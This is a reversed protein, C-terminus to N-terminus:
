ESMGENRIGLLLVTTDSPLKVKNLFFFREFLKRFLNYRNVSSFYCTLTGTAGYGYGYGPVSLHELQRCEPLSAM